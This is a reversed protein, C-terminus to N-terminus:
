FLEGKAVARSSREFDTAAEHLALDGFEMDAAGRRKLPPQGWSVLLQVGFVRSAELM